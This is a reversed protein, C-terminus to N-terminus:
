MSCRHLGITSVPKCVIGRIFIFIRTSFRKQAPLEYPLGENLVLRRNSAASKIFTMWKMPNVTHLHRTTIEQM